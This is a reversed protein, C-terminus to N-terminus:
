LMQPSSLSSLLSFLSPALRTTKAKPYSDNEKSNNISSPKILDNKKVLLVFPDIKANELIGEFL